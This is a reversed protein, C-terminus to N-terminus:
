LIAFGLSIESLYNRMARIGKPTLEVWTVRGDNPLEKRLVLAQEELKTIWRLATTLAVGSSVCLNTTNTRRQELHLAYLELLMDWAPDAFLDPDFFRSRRRRAHLVRRILSPNDVSSADEVNQYALLSEIQVRLEEFNRIVSDYNVRALEGNTDGKNVIPGEDFNRWERVM